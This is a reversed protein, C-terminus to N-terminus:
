LNGASGIMAPSRFLSNSVSTMSSAGSLGLSTAEVPLSPAAHPEPLSSVRRPVGGEVPAPEFSQAAKILVDALTRVLQNAVGAPMLLRCAVTGRLRPPNGSFLDGDDPRVNTFTVQVM